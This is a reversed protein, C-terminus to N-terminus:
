MEVLNSKEKLETWSETRGLGERIECAAVSWLASREEERLLRRGRKDGFASGAKLTSERPAVPAVPQHEGRGALM